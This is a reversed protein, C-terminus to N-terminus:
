SRAASKATYKIRRTCLLAVKFLFIRFAFTLFSIATRLKSYAIAQFPASKLDIGQRMPAQLM